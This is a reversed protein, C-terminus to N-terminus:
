RGKQMRSWQFSKLTMYRRAWSVLQVNVHTGSAVKKLNKMSDEDQFCGYHIFNLRADATETELHSLYHLKPMLKYLLRGQRLSRHAAHQYALLFSRLLWCSELTERETLHPKQGQGAVSLATDLFWAMSARARAWHVLEDDTNDPLSKELEIVYFTLFALLSRCRSAKITSTLEPYQLAANLAEMTLPKISLELGNSKCWTQAHSTWRFLVEDKKSGAPMHLFKSMEGSLLTEVLISALLDRLCGLHVLHM